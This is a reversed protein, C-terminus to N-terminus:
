SVEPTGDSEGFIQEIMFKVENNSLSSVLKRSKSQDGGDDFLGVFLDAAKKSIADVRQLQEDTLPQEVDPSANQELKQYKKLERMLQSIELQELNGM